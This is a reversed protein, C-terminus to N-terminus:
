YIFSALPTCAHTFLFQTYVPFERNSPLIVSYWRGDILNCYFLTFYIILMEGKWGRGHYKKIKDKSLIM